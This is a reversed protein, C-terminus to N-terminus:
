TTNRSHYVPQSIEATILIFSYCKQQLMEATVNRSHYPHRRPIEATTNRSHYKQPPLSPATDHRSYCKQQPLSSPTTNRSHYPHLQPMEALEPHPQPIGPSNTLCIGRCRQWISTSTLRTQTLLIM